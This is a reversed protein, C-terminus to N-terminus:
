RESQAGQDKMKIGFQNDDSLVAAGSPTEM